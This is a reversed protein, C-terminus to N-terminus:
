SAGRDRYLPMLWLVKRAPNNDVNFSNIHSFGKSSGLVHYRCLTNEGGGWEKAGGILIIIYNSSIGETFHLAPAAEWSHGPPATVSFSESPGVWSHTPLQVTPLASGQCVTRMCSTQGELISASNKILLRSRIWSHWKWLETRPTGHMYVSLAMLSLGNKSNGQHRGADGGISGRM